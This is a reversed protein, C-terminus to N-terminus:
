ADADARGLFDAIFRRYIATLRALDDLAVHEDVQHITKSVLGFEAVPCVSKFFRADSTGGNTSPAPRIGTVSEIAGSLRGILAESRTLFCDSAGPQITLTYGGAGAEDLVGRVFTEVTAPSWRDNFRVNFRASATAPIINFAPNGVDISVVELNSPEFDASGEDLRRETLRALLRVLRPVPNDAQHPYAVHGQQGHVTLWGNISGRRGIKMM